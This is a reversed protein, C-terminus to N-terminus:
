EKNAIKIIKLIFAKSGEESMGLDMLEELIRPDKANLRQLKEEYGPAEAATRMFHAKLAAPLFHGANGLGSTIDKGKKEEIDSDESARMKAHYEEWLALTQERGTQLSRYYAGYPYAFNRYLVPCQGYYGANFYPYM